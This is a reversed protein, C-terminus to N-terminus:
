MNLYFLTTLPVFALLLWLAATGSRAFWVLAPVLVPWIYRFDNSCAFPLKIRLVMLSAVWFFALLVWPSQRYAARMSKPWGRALALAFLALLLSGWLYAIVTTVKSGAFSFEGTLSTRLLYNWFNTRGVADDWPSM